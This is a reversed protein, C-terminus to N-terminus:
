DDQPRRLAQIEAQLREITKQHQGVNRRLQIGSFFDAVAGILVGVFVSFLIALFLPVRPFIWEQDMAPSLSFRVSVDQSNQIALLPVFLFAAMWLLTKFWRM